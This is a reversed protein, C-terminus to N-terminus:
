RKTERNTERGTARILEQFRADSRLGDLEPDV